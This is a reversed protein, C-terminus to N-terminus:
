MSWFDNKYMEPRYGLYMGRSDFWFSGFGSTRTYLTDRCEIKGSVINIHMNNYYEKYRQNTM